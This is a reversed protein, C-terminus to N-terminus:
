LQITNYLKSTQAGIVSWDYSHLITHFAARDKRRAAIEEPHESLYQMWRALEPESLLGMNWGVNGVSLVEPMGGVDSILSPVGRNVASFLLGSQSIRRYTLMVVSTLELFAEFDLDSLMGDLTYVNQLHEVPSYDVDHKRGVILLRCNPNDRLAPTAAWVNVVEQTGKYAKQIGLCSFVVQGPLIKLEQKLDEARRKVEVAPIQSELVGHHVVFVKSADVQMQAILDERTRQDHVIIGDVLHYYKRYQKPDSPRQVHPLINHATFVFRVGRRRLLWSFLYDVYWLRFWQVHIVAPRERWADCFLKLMSWAYSLAKKWGSKYNSYHFYCRNECKPLTPLQYLDSYYYVIEQGFVNNLLSFDYVSLNNYSQPDIYYIKTSM